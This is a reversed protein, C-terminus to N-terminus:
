PGSAQFATAITQAAETLTMALGAVDDGTVDHGGGRMLAALVLAVDRASLQLLRDHLAQLGSVGLGSEMEALAGLTLCLRYPQGGLTVAVEGRPTKCPLSNM